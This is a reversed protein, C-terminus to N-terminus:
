PSAVVTTDDSGCDPCPHDRYEGYFATGCDNCGLAYLGDEGATCAPCDAWKYANRRMGCEMCRRNEVM